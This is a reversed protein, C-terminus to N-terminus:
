KKVIGKRDLIQLYLGWDGGLQAVKVLIENKGKKLTVPIIDDCPRASRGINKRFYEKGNVWVAAGDDSGFLLLVKGDKSAEITTYAYSVVNEQSPLDGLLDLYGFKGASKKIWKLEQGNVGKYTKNLKVKKEPAYPTDLGKNAINPFSGLVWWDTIRLTNLEKRRVIRSILKRPLDIKYPAFEEALEFWEDFHSYDRTIFYLPYFRYKNEPTNNKRLFDDLVSIDMKEPNKYFMTGLYNAVKDANENGSFYTLYTFIRNINESGLTQVRSFMAEELSVQFDQNRFGIYHQFPSSNLVNRQSNDAELHIKLIPSPMTYGSLTKAKFPIILPDGPQLSIKEKLPLTFKWNDKAHWQYYGVVPKTFNTKIVMNTDFHLENNQAALPTVEGLAYKVRQELEFMEYEVFNDPMFDQDKNLSFTDFVKGDISIARGIIQDKTVDLIVFHYISRYYASYPQPVVPYLPAGGGASTIHITGQQKESMNGIPFTRCYYHDHGTIVFNINYKIFLPTWYYRIDYVPRSPHVHFLPYHFMVIKWNKDQNAKLDQVLWKFQESDPSGDESTNLGTLHVSGYDIAWWPKGQHIPFHQYYYGSKREHNGMTPYVPVERILDKAPEFFQPKWQEIQDGSAVLDGSHLIIDPKFKAVQQCIKGFIEPLSRTDAVIAIRIAINDDAPATKFHYIETSEESWQCQYYYTQNPQLGTIQIQHLKVAKEETLSMSLKNPQYGYLVKGLVPETTEWLITIGDTRAAQLYPGYHLTSAFLSSTILLFLIVFATIKKM